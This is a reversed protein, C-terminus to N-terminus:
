QEARGERQWADWIENTLEEFRPKGKIDFNWRHDFEYILIDAVDTASRAYSLGHLINVMIGAYWEAGSPDLWAIGHPDYKYFIDLLTDFVPGYASM